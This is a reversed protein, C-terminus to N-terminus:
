PKNYEKVFLRFTKGNCNALRFEENEDLFIIHELVTYNAGVNEQNNVHSVIEGGGTGSFEYSEGGINAVSGLRYTAGSSASEIRYVFIESYRGSPVTYIPFNNNIVTGSKTEANVITEGGTFTAM